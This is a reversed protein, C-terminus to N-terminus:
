YCWGTKMSLFYCYVHQYSLPFNAKQIVDKWKNWLAILGYLWHKVSSSFIFFGLCNAHVCVASGSNDNGFSVSRPCRLFDTVCMNWWFFQNNDWSYIWLHGAAVHLLLQVGVASHWVFLASSSLPILCFIFVVAVSTFLSPSSCLSCVCRAAAYM